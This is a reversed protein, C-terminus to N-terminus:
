KAQDVTFFVDIGRQSYSRQKTTETKGGILKGAKKLRKIKNNLSEATRGPFMVLLEKITKTEYNEMLLKQESYTWNKRRM